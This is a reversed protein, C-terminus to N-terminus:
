GKPPPQSCLCEAPLLRVAYTFFCKDCFPNTFWHVEEQKMTDTHLLNGMGDFWRYVIDLGLREYQVWSAGKIPSIIVQDTM